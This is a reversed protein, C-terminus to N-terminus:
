FQISQSFSGKSLDPSLAFKALFRIARLLSSAGGNDARLRSM